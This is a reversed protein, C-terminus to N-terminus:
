IVEIEAELAGASRLNQLIAIVDRPTSGISQLARVLEEVAAGQKLVLNRAKEEKAAVTTKPVVETKGQSLPGPQSVELTTQIEVSLSGHLIAIPSIKVEKGLVITGTRENIIIKAKRDAEITLSEIGAMFEVPKSAYAAPVTVVVLASNEAKAIESGGTAYKENIGLAIRAATTFDPQQLQLRFTKGPPISPALREVIAGAPIRGGTPHNVTTSNGGKGAAFGGTLVSGQASAYIQGDAAKLPSMLLQGGQLNTADGIASVSVDIRIGTQAFPPLNATLLVAAVNKVQIASPNVTLGMRELLNTLSQSAFVTQRKDGTGNLGVVLGYGVLQNDRVGEITTLEKVRSPAPLAVAAFALFVAFRRM